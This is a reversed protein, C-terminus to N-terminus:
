QKLEILNKKNEEAKTVDLETCATLITALTKLM